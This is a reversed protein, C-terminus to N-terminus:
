NLDPLDTLGKDLKAEESKPAAEEIEPGDSIRFEYFDANLSSLVSETDFDGNASIGSMGSSSALGLKQLKIGSTPNYDKINRFFGYVSELNDAQGCITTHPGFSLSTLWLKQPIETGMITYYSYINKNGTVGIRVEDSESFTASSIDKNEDIFKQIDNIENQMVNIKEKNSNIQTALLKNIGFCIAIILLGLIAGYKVMNEISLEIGNWTPPVQSLYIDGLDKNFLNMSSLSVNNFQQRIAAGIVEPSILKSVNEDIGQAAEILCNKSYINADLHVIQSNYVLKGALIEASILNTNSIVYLLQSPVRAIVPNIASVVTDYNEADGLVEGISIKEEFCDVYNAGQMPIIRVLNDEVIAMLWTSGPQADVNRSYILANLSSNISTDIAVLKYGLDKIQMAIEIAQGKSVAAFAIKSTQITSNSLKSFAYHPVDDVNSFAPHENLEDEINMAINNADMSAPWDRIQFVSPPLNLVLKTGKPVQMDALMDALTEKFIDLDAVVNRNKDYDLQKSMYNVVTGTAYDIQVAELGHSPSVSIGVIANKSIAM